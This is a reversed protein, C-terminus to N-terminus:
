LKFMVGIMIVYFDSKFQATSALDLFVYRIDGTLLLNGAPLSVGAGIHYGPKSKTENSIQSGIQKIPQAFDIQTDYWGIGAEGHIMPMLSIFGTLNIPYSKTTAFGNNFKESKYYVSGEFGFGLLDLRLALGPMISANDADTSKIIGVQPGVALTQAHIFSMSLALFFLIPYIKVKM